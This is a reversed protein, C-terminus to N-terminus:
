WRGFPTFGLFREIRQAQEEMVLLAEAQEQESLEQNETIGYFAQSFAGILAEQAERRKGTLNKIGKTTQQTGNNTTFTNSPNRM